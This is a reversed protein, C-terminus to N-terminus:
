GCPDSGLLVQKLQVQLHAVTAALDADLAGSVAERVAALKHILRSSDDTSTDDVSSLALLLLTATHARRLRFCSPGGASRDPVEECEDCSCGPRLMPRLECEVTEFLPTAELAVLLAEAAERQASSLHRTCVADWATCDSGSGATADDSRTSPDASADGDSGGTSTDLLLSKRYARAYSVLVEDLSAERNPLQSHLAQVLRNAALCLSRAVCDMTATADSDSSSSSSSACCQSRSSSTSVGISSSPAALCSELSFGARLIPTAAMRSLEICGRPKSTTPDPPMMAEHLRALPVWHPPLKFRAVDLVLVSDTEPDYAAVPSFHGDGTQRLVRRSYAVVLFRATSSCCAKVLDRFAELSLSDGRWVTAVAGQCRALCAFADITIGRLKIAALPDCCSLHEEHFWRWPADDRWRRGPDVQLANLCVVLSTLGCFAPESQTSFQALLALSAEASGAQLSRILRLKSEASVFDVLDEPLEKRYSTAM